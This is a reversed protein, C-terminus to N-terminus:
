SRVLTGDPTLLVHFMDLWKLQPHTKNAVLVAAELQKNFAKVIERTENLVPVV